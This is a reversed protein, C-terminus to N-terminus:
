KDLLFDALIVNSVNIGERTLYIRDGTQRMFETNLYKYLVPGYIEFIDKKFREKFDETSVGCMMRLGLFMFEEMRDYIYLPTINERLKRMVDNYIIELNDGVSIAERENEFTRLYTEYDRTNNFRKGQFYSSSGLGIGIYEGGTWYVMNHICEYGEKSYNSIEYRSYGRVALLNETIEYMRREIFEPPLDEAVTPDEAFPTGEEIQLSYASIHEPGFKMVETLTKSYDKLTQGPLGSMVDVNINDFGARRASSFTDEFQAFTHIRGLRKLLADDASQLGISLRNIGAAKFMSLKQLRVTGPNVEISIEADKYINFNKKLATMIETISEEDLVSPTGGGIYVSRVAYEDKLHSYLKIEDCVARVYSISSAFNENDFSLFDCYLCKKRCFPIHIYISLDKRM